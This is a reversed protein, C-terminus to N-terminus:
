GKYGFRGGGQELAARWVENDLRVMADLRSMTRQTAGLRQLQEVRRGASDSDGVNVKYNALPKGARVLGARAKLDRELAGLDDVTYVGDLHAMNSLAAEVVREDDFSPEVQRRGLIRSRGEFIRSAFYYAYFNDYHNDLFTRLHPKGGCFYEDCPLELAAKMGQHQPLELEGPPMRGAKARLFFYFSLIRDRPERLITFVFKPGEICDLLAWDLHGSFLRYRAIDDLPMGILTNNMRAPAIEDASFGGQLYAHVSQGATKPIHLFVLKCPQPSSSAESAPEEM